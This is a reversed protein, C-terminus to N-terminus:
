VRLLPVEVSRGGGTIWLRLMNRVIEPIVPRGHAGDRWEIDIPGAKLSKIGDINATPEATRDRALFWKALEATAEQLREPIVTSPILYGNIGYVGYTNAGQDYVGFRPWKLGQTSSTAVGMFDYSEDILRTATLLARVKQDADTEARWTAGYLSDEHFADAFEVTCYSNADPAGATAVLVSPM